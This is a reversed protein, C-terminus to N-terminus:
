NGGRQFGRRIISNMDGSASQGRSGQSPDPQPTGPQKMAVIREAQRTLSEEDTGTMLAEADEDSIRYKTAIRYRLAEARAEQAAREAAALRETAKETETKQSEEIQALREAADANAKARKEQERAKAKWFEVTETPKPDANDTAPDSAPETPAGTEPTVTATDTM